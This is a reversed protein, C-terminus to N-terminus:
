RKERYVMFEVLRGFMVLSIVAGLAPYVATLTTPFVFVGRAMAVLDVVALGGDGAFPLLDILEVATLIFIIFLRPDAREIADDKAARLIHEPPQKAAYEGLSRPSFFHLSSWFIEGLRARAWAISADMREKDDLEPDMRKTALWFLLGFSLILGGVPGALVTLLHEFPTFELDPRPVRASVGIPYKRVLTPVLPTDIVTWEPGVGLTIWPVNAGYYRGAWVHRLEHFYVSGLWVGILLM